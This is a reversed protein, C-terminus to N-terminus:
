FQTLVKIMRTNPIVMVVATKSERKQINGADISQQATKAAHGLKTGFKVIKIINAM